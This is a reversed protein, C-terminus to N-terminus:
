FAAVGLIEGRGEGARRPAVEAKPGAGTFDEDEDAFAVEGLGDAPARSAAAAAAELLFCCCCCCCCCPCAGRCFVGMDCSGGDVVRPRANVAPLNGMVAEFLEEM